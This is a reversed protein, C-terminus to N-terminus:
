HAWRLSINRLRELRELGLRPEVTCTKIAEYSPREEKRYKEVPRLMLHIATLRDDAHILNIRSISVRKVRMEVTRECIKMTHSLLKIGSYNNCIRIYGSTKICALVM